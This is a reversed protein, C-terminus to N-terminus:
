KWMGWFTSPFPNREFIDVKFFTRDSLFDFQQAHVSSHCIGKLEQYNWTFFLVQLIYLMKLFKWFSLGALFLCVKSFKDRPMETGILKRGHFVIKTLFDVVKSNEPFKGLFNGYWQGRNQFNWFNQNFSFYRSDIFHYQFYILNYFGKWKCDKWLSKKM